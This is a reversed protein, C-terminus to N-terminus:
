RIHRIHVSNSTETRYNCDCQDVWPANGCGCVPCVWGVPKNNNPLTNLPINPKNCNCGGSMIPQYCVPCKDFM